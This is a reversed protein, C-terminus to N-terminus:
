STREPLPEIRWGKEHADDIMRERDRQFDRRGYVVFLTGIASDKLDGTKYAIKVPRGDPTVYDGYVDIRPWGIAKMANHLQTMTPATVVFPPACDAPVPVPDPCNRRQKLWNEYAM